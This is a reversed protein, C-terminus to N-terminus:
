VVEKQSVLTYYQALKDADKKLADNDFMLLSFRASPKEQIILMM